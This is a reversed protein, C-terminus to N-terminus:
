YGKANEDFFGIYKATRKIGTKLTGDEYLDIWRYGPSLHDLGFHDQKRKFQICTSPPAYCKVGNKVQEFEQHVHGFIVTNVKPYEEIIKWFEDANSLGLKDLWAANVPLAHHHFLIIANHEPYTQLCHQMYNLQSQDLYGEVHGPKQSNLLIIHWDKLIIHRHSSINERPYIHAIIKTNDHNGPVFYVPVHFSKMLDALHFYASESGDQSLDGSLIIFDIYEEQKILDLVASLSEETKVGLLEGKNDGLLHIDSIQIIRVPREEM